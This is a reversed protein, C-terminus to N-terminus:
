IETDARQSQRNQAHPPDVHFELRAADACLIKLHSEPGGLEMKQSIMLTTTVLMREILMPCLFIPKFKPPLCPVLVNLEGLLVM